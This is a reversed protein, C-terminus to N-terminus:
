IVLRVPLFILIRSISLISAWMSGLAEGCGQAGRHEARGVEM